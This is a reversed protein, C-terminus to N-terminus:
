LLLLELWNRKAHVIRMVMVTQTSERVIYFVLQNGVQLMRFGASALTDDCVVPHRYPMTSLSWVAKEIDELLQEAGLPNKLEEAIYMITQHLDQEAPETIYIHYNM